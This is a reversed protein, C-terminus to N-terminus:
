PKKQPTPAQPMIPADKAEQQKDEDPDDAPQYSGESPNPIQNSKKDEKEEDKSTQALAPIISSISVSREENIQQLSM